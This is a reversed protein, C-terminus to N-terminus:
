NSDVDVEWSYFWLGFKVKQDKCIPANPSIGNWRQIRYGLGYYNFPEKAFNGKIVFVPENCKRIRQYDYIGSAIGLIVFISIIIIIIKTRKKM